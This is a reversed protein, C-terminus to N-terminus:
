QKLFYQWKELVGFMLTEYGKYIRKKSLPFPFPFSDLNCKNRRKIRIARMSQTTGTM